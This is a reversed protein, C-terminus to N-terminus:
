KNKMKSSVVESGSGTESTHTSSVWAQSWLPRTDWTWSILAVFEEAETVPDSFFVFYILTGLWALSFLEQANEIEM